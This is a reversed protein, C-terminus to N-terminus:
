NRESGWDDKQKGKFAQSVIPNFLFTSLSLVHAHANGRTGLHRIEEDSRALTRMSRTITLSAFLSLLRIWLDIVYVFM